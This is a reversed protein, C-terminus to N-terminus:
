LHFLFIQYHVLCSNTRSWKPCYTTCVSTIYLPPLFYKFELNRCSYIKLGEKQTIFIRSFRAIYIRTKELTCYFNKLGSFSSLLIHPIGLFENLSIIAAAFRKRAFPSFWRTLSYAKVFWLLLAFLAVRNKYNLWKM